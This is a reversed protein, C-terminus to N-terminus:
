FGIAEWQAKTSQANPLPGEDKMTVGQVDQIVRGIKACSDKVSKAATKAKAKAEDSLGFEYLCVLAVCTLTLTTLTGRARVM